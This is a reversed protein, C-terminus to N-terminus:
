LGLFDRDIEIVREHIDVRKVADSVFPILLADEGVELLECSPGDLVRVVRGLGPIECGVLDTVLYEDAELEQEALLLEGRLPAPDDVGELRVIPRQDTGARRVVERETGAIRVRSGVEFADAPDEVYFSGDRGHARGVRGVTVESL